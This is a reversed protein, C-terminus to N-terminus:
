LELWARFFQINQDVEIYTNWVSLILKCLPTLVKPGSQLHRYFNWM